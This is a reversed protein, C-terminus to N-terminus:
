VFKVYDKMEKVYRSPHVYRSYGGGSESTSYSLRLHEKARTIAVYFLRREEELEEHTDAMKCPLVGEELAVVFVVPFELGKAAHITMIKVTDKENLEDQHAVLKSEELFESLTKGNLQYTKLMALLEKVNGIRDYSERKFKDVLYKEYGISNYIFALADHPFKEARPLVMTMMNLFKDVADKQKKSLLTHANSLKEVLTDGSCETIKDLAVAGISRSPINIIRDFAVRDKPNKIFSLYSVMDRVEKRQGFKLGGVVQYPIKLNMLADEISRTVFTLRVLIAFDNYSYKELTKLRSIERAISFAEKSRDYFERLIIDNGAPKDTNLTLVKDKWKGTVKSIIANAATIINRGSRYNKEMKIIKAGPFEEEFDLVNAPNAGRWSYILQQPDAVVTLSERNNVLMKLIMHQAKNTDQYEDVLFYSFSEQWKKLVDPNETFLKVVFFLLDDFDMANSKRLLTMYNKFIEKFLPYESDYYDLLGRNLSEKIKSIAERIVKVDYLDQIVQMENFVLRLARESEKEDYIVFDKEFGVFPADDRLIKACMSHFTTIWKPDGTIKLFEKVRSKMENAAKNTFTIALIKDFELGHEILYIFKNTIVRTKGSGAGSIVLLPSKLYTVAEIQKENLEQLEM